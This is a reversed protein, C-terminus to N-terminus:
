RALLGFYQGVGTSIQWTNQRGAYTLDIRIVRGAGARGLDLRLGPGASWIMEDLRLARDRDWAGGFDFVLAGGISATLVEIGSFLRTEVNGILVRDGTLSNERYGRVGNSEGLSLPDLQDIRKDAVFTVRSAFTMWNLGNHFATLTANTLSRIEAGDSIWGQRSLRGSVIANGVRVGGFVVARWTNYIVGDFSLDRAQGAAVLGGSTLVVDETRGHLDIRRTREFSIKEYLLAGGVLHFASDAPLSVNIVQGSSDRVVGGSNLTYPAVASVEPPRLNVHSYSGSATWKNHFGGHRYAGDLRVLAGEQFFTLATDGDNLKLERNRFDRISIGYSFRDRQRVFFRSFTISRNRNFPNDNIEIALHHFTGFVRPNSYNATFYNPDPNVFNYKLSIEHGLGLLNQERAGVEVRSRGPQQTVQVGGSLSFKDITRVRLKVSDPNTSDLTVEADYIFPLNRLTRETEYALDADFRDGPGLLLERQVVYDRTRSHFKNLMRYAWVREALSDSFVNEPEIIIGRIIPLEIADASVPAKLEDSDSESSVGAGAFLCLIPCLATRILVTFIRSHKAICNPIDTM